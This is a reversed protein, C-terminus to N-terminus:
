ELGQRRKPLPCSGHCRVLEDLPPVSRRNHTHSVTVAAAPGAPVSLTRDPINRAVRNSHHKPMPLDSNREIIRLSPQPSALDIEGSIFRPAGPDPPLHTWASAPADNTEGQNFMAAIVAPRCDNSCLVLHM